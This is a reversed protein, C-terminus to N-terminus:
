GELNTRESETSWLPAEAEGRHEPIKMTKDISLQDDTMKQPLNFDPIVVTVMKIVDTNHPIM